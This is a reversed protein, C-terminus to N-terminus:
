YIHLTYHLEFQGVTRKLIKSLVQLLAIMVFTKMLKCGCQGKACARGHFLGGGGSISNGFNQPSSNQIQGLHSDM